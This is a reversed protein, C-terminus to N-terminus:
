VLFWGRVKGKLILALGTTKSGPDVKVKTNQFTPNKKQKKLIITFPYMRWVSAKGEKLLIRARAPRCPSLPSKDHNLVFVRNM